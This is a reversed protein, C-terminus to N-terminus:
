DTDVKRNEEDIEEKLKDIENMVDEPTPTGKKKKGSPPLAGNEMRTYIIELAGSFTKLQRDQEEPSLKDFEKLIRKRDKNFKKRRLKKGMSGM